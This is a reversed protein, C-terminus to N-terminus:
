GTVSALMEHNSSIVSDSDSYSHDGMYVIYHKTTSIAENLLAYRFLFFTIVAAISTLRNMINM